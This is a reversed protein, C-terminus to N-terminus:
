DFEPGCELVVVRVGVDYSCDGVTETTPAIASRVIDGLVGFRDLGSDFCLISYSPLCELLALCGFMPSYELSVIIGLDVRTQRRGFPYRGEEVADVVKRPRLPVMSVIDFVSHDLGTM